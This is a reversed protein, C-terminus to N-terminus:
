WQLKELGAEGLFQVPHIGVWAALAQDDEKMLQGRLHATGADHDTRSVAEKGIRVQEEQGADGADIRHFPVQGEAVEGLGDVVTGFNGELSAGAAKFHGAFNEGAAFVLHDDFRFSPRKSIVKRSPISSVFTLSRMM